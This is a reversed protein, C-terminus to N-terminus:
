PHCLPVLMRCRDTCVADTADLGATCDKAAPPLLVAPRHLHLKRLVAPRIGSGDMNAEDQLQARAEPSEARAGVQPIEDATASCM